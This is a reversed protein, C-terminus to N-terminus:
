ALAHDASPNPSYTPVLLRSFSQSPTIGTGATPTGNVDATITLAVASAPLALGGALATTTVRSSLTWLVPCTNGFNMNNSLSAITAPAVAGGATTTVLTTSSHGTNSTSDQIYTWKKDRFLTEAPAPEVSHEFASIDSASSM